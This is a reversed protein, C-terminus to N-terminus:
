EAEEFERRQPVWRWPREAVDEISEMLEAATEPMVEGDRECRDRDLFLARMWRVFDRVNM